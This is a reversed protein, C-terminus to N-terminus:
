KKGSELNDKETEFRLTLGLITTIIGCVTVLVAFFAYLGDYNTTIPSILLFGLYMTIIGCITIIWNQRKMLSKRM